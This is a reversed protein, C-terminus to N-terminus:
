AKSLKYLKEQHEKMRLLARGIAQGTARQKTELQKDELPQIQALKTRLGNLRRLQNIFPKNKESNLIVLANQTNPPFDLESPCRFRQVCAVLERLINDIDESITARDPLPSQGM